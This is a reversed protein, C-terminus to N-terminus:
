NSKGFSKVFITIYYPSLSTNEGLDPLSSNTIALRSEPDNRERTPVPVFPPYEHGDAADCLGPCSVALNAPTCCAGALLVIKSRTGVYVAFNPLNEVISQRGPRGTDTLM